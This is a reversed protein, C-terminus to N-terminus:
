RAALRCRAYIEACHDPWDLGLRFYGEVLAPPLAAMESNPLFKLVIGSTEVIEFGATELDRRLSPPDYVRQHDLMRDRESLDHADSLLGMEVGVLRHFSWANPVIVHLQGGPSLWRGARRLVAVADRVHELGRALVIDDYRHTPEFEEFLACFLGLDSRSVRARVGELYRSSGDVVDLSSVWDCLRATMVGSSCGMELTRGRSLRDRLIEFGWGALVADFDRTVDFVSAIADLKEREESMAQDSHPFRGDFNPEGYRRPVM